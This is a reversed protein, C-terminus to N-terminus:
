LQETLTKEILTIINQLFANLRDILISIVGTYKVSLTVFVLILRPTPELAQTFCLLRTGMGIRRGLEACIRGDASLQSGLYVM